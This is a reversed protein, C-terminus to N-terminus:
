PLLLVQLSRNWSFTNTQALNHWDLTIKECRLLAKKKHMNVKSIFIIEESIGAFNAKDTFMDAIGLAKLIDNLSYSTKLSLNIKRAATRWKEIHQRSIAMEFDKITKDEIFIDIHPVALFMSFSDNYYPSQHTKSPNFSLDWKGKFYIYTLLFMLSDSELDDVAQDIKGHTKRFDVTLGDSHYFEKMKELFEPLPKLKNSVYLASSVDIDVGKRQDIKFVLSNRGIGSLLQKKTEGGAGLSLESCSVSFPSLFINKFQYEPMEVLRKCLHFAFDNNMKILSPIKDSIPPQPLTEPNGHVVAFACIWLYIINRYTRLHSGLV